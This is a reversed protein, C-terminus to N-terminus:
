KDSQKSPSPPRNNDVIPTPKDYVKKAEVSGHCISCEAEQSGSVIAKGGKCFYCIELYKSRLAPNSSGGYYYRNEIGGTGECNVCKKYTNVKVKGTYDCSSCDSQLVYECNPCKGISNIIHTNKGMCNERKIQDTYFKVTSESEDSRDRMVIAGMKNKCNLPCSIRTSTISYDDGILQLKFNCRCNAFYKMRTVMETKPSSFFSTKTIPEITSQTLVQWHVCQYNAPIYQECEVCYFICKQESAMTQLLSALTASDLYIFSTLIHVDTTYRNLKKFLIRLRFKSYSNASKM